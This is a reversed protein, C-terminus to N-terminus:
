KVRRVKTQTNYGEVSLYWAGGILSPKITVTPNNLTVGVLRSHDGHQEWVQGNELEFRTNGTWGTFEGPIRSVIAERSSRQFFGRRDESAATAPSAAAPAHLGQARLWANLAALEEASLKELGAAKFEAHSMREELSSFAQAWLPAAPILLAALLALRRM